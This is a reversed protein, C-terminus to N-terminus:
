RCTHLVSFIPAPSIPQHTLIAPVRYMWWPSMAQVWYMRWPSGQDLDRHLVGIDRIPTHTYVSCKPWKLCGTCACQQLFYVYKPIYQSLYLNEHNCFVLISRVFITKPYVCPAICNKYLSQKFRISHVTHWMQLLDLQCITIISFYNYVYLPPAAVISSASHQCFHFCVSYFCTAKPPICVLNTVYIVNPTVHVKLQLRDISNTRM